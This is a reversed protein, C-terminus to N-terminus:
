RRTTTSVPANTAPSQNIVGFLNTKGGVDSPLIISFDQLNTWSTSKFLDDGIEIGKIKDIMVLFDRGVTKEELSDVSIINETVVAQGGFMKYGFFILASLVFAGLLIKNQKLTEM